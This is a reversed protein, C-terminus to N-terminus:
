IVQECEECKFNAPHESDRHLELEAVSDWIKSCRECQYKFGREVTAGLRKAKTNHRPWKRKRGRKKKEPELLEQSMQDSKSSAESMVETKIEPLVLSSNDINEVEKDERNEATKSAKDKLQNEPIKLENLVFEILKVISDKSEPSKQQPEKIEQSCNGTKPIFTKPTYHKKKIKHTYLIEHSKFTRDCYECYTMKPLYFLNSEDSCKTLWHKTAMTYSDFVEKCTICEYNIDTTHKKQHAVLNAKNAYTRNCFECHLLLETLVKEVNKYVINNSNIDKGMSDSINSIEDSIISIEPSEEACESGSKEELKTEGVETCQEAHLNAPAPTAFVQYCKVCQWVAVDSRYFKSIDGAKKCHNEKHIRLRNESVFHKNCHECVNINGEDHSTQHRELNNKSVFQKGCTSCDFKMRLGKDIDKIDANPKLVVKEANFECQHRQYQYKTPFNTDCNQCVIMTPINPVKSDRKFSTANGPLNKCEDVNNLVISIETPFSTNNYDESGGIKVVKLPTDDLDLYKYTFRIKENSSFSLDLVDTFASPNMNIPFNSILQNTVNDLDYQISSVTGDTGHIRHLKINGIDPNNMNLESVVQHRKFQIRDDFCSQM